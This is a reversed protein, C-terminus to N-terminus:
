IKIQTEIFITETKVYSGNVYEFGDLQSLKEKCEDLSDCTYDCGDYHLNWADDLWSGPKDFWAVQHFYETKKRVGRVAKVSVPRKGSQNEPHIYYTKAM